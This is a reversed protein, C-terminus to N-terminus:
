VKINTSWLKHMWLWQEPHKQIAAQILEVFKATNAALDVTKDGTRNLTIEESIVIRHRGKTERVIYGFVVPTNTKLAFEAAGRAIMTERGFVKMGLGASGANQDIFFSVLQNHEFARLVPRLFGLKPISNIGAAQRTKIIYDDLLTNSQTKAISSVGVGTLAIRVGMLEWNGIHGLVMIVGRQKELVRQLNAEGEITINSLVRQSRNAYYIFESGIKGLHEWTKRAIRNVNVTSPFFGRNQAERINEITLERRSKLVKFALVGLRSGLWNCCALPLFRVLLLFVKFSCFELWHKLKRKDAAM